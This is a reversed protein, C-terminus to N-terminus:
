QGGFIKAFEDYNVACLINGVNGKEEGYKM